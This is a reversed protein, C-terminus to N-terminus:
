KKKNHSSQKDLTSLLPVNSSLSDVYLTLENYNINETSIMSSFKSWEAQSGDVKKLQPLLAREVFNKFLNILKKENNM